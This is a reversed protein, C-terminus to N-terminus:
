RNNMYPAYNLRFNFNQSTLGRAVHGDVYLFNAGIGDNLEHRFILDRGDYNANARPVNNEYIAVTQAASEVASEPQRSLKWNMAYGHGDPELVPCHFVINSKVYPTLNDQWKDAPPLKEDYDQMYMQMALGVQKLRNQCLESARPDTTAMGNSSEIGIDAPPPAEAMNNSAPINSPVNEPAVNNMPLNAPPAKLAADIDQMLPDQSGIWNRATELLDVKWGGGSQVCAVPPLPKPKAIPAVTVNARQRNNSYLVRAEVANFQAVMFLRATLRDTLAPDITKLRGAEFLDGSKFQFANLFPNASLTLVFAKAAEDASQPVPNDQSQAWLRAGGVSSLIIAAGLSARIWMKSKM